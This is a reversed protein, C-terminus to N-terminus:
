RDLLIEGCESVNTRGKCLKKSPGGQRIRKLGGDTPVATSSEQPAGRVTL